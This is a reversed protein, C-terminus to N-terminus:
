LILSKWYKKQVKIVEQIEEYVDKSLDNEFKSTKPTEGLLVKTCEVLSKSSEELNYGGELCLIMKTGFSKLLHVIQAFGNPTVNMGGLPDGKVADFGASVFIMQPQFENLIPLIVKKFILLYEGDGYRDLSLPINVNFGEGKDKGIDNLDGTGPYFSGYRHTSVFLVNPDDYFIDETGNGHHVDFDIIAVKKLNHKEMAFKASLAINNLFCFGMATDKTAHHGPPRSIIIGNNLESSLVQHTMEMSSGSSLLAADVTFENFYVDSHKPLKKLDELFLRVYEKNHVMELEDRKAKRSAIRKCKLHLNEKKFHEWIAVLRKPSEPHSSYTCHGMMREDFIYGTKSNIEKEENTIDQEKEYDEKKFNNNLNYDDNTDTLKEYREKKLNKAQIYLTEYM